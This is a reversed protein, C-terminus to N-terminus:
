LFNYLIEINHRFSYKLKFKLLANDKINDKARRIQEKGVIQLVTFASVTKFPYIKSLLTFMRSFAEVELLDSPL